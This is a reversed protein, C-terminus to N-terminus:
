CNKLANDMAKIFDDVESKTVTLSPSIRVVNGYLGGKGILVKEKKM